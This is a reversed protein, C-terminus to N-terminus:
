GGGDGKGACEATQAEIHTCIVCARRSRRERLYIGGPIPAYPGTPEIHEICRTRTVGDNCTYTAIIRYDFSETPQM